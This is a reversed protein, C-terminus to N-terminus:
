MGSFYITNIILSNCRETAMAKEAFAVLFVFIVPLVLFCWEEDYQM